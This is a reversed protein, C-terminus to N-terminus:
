NESIDSCSSKRNEEVIGLEIALEELAQLVPKTQLLAPIMKKQKTFDLSERALDLGSLILKRRETQREHGLMDSRNALLLCIESSVSNCDRGFNGLGNNIVQGFRLNESDIAWDVYDDLNELTNSKNECLDLLMM